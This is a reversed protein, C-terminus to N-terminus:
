CRGRPCPSRTATGARTSSSCTARSPRERRRHRRSSSREPRSSSAARRGATGVLHRAPLRRRPAAAARGRDGSPVPAGITGAYDELYEIMGDLSMFDDPRDGAYEGGPLQLSWNPTNLYFGDWRESRWTEGVRGRELVVHEIGRRTLHHSTALGAQGGGVVVTDVREGVPPSAVPRSDDLGSRPGVQCRLGGEGLDSCPRPLPSVGFQPQVALLGLTASWGECRRRRGPPRRRASACAARAPCRGREGRARGPRRRRARRRPPQAPRPQLRRGRSSSMAPESASRAAAEAASANGTGISPTTAPRVESAVTKM